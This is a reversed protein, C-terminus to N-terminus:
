RDIDGEHYIYRVSDDDDFMVALGICMWVVLGIFFLLLAGVIILLFKWFM